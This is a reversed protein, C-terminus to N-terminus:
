KVRIEVQQGDKIFEFQAATYKPPGFTGRADNSFGYPEKPIGFFNTDLMGNNNEDHYLSLAYTGLRLNEFTAIVFGAETVEANIGDVIEDGLFKQDPSYAAIRIAGEGKKINTVKVKLFHREESQGSVVFVQICFLVQLLLIAINNLKM